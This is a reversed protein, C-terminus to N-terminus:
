FQNISMRETRHYQGRRQPQVPAAAPKPQPPPPAPQAAMKAKAKKRKEEKQALKEYRESLAELDRKLSDNVTAQMNIWSLELNDKKPAPEPAPEPEPPKTAKPPLPRTGADTDLHPSQDIPIKRRKVTWRGAASRTAQYEPDEIGREKLKIIEARKDSALREYVKKPTSKVEPGQSGGSAPPPAVPEQPEPKKAEKVKPKPEPKKVPEQAKRSRKVPKVEEEDSSYSDSSEYRKSM